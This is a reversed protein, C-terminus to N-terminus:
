PCNNCRPASWGGCSNETHDITQSRGQESQRAGHLAHQSQPDVCREADQADPQRETETELLPHCQTANLPRGNRHSDCQRKRKEHHEPEVPGDESIGSRGRQHRDHARAHEKAEAICQDKRHNGHLADRAGHTQQHRQQQEQGNSARAHKRAIPQAAKVHTCQLALLQRLDHDVTCTAGTQLQGCRQHLASVHYDTGEDVIRRM